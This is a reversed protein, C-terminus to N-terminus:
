YIKSYTLNNIYKISPFPAKEAKIFNKNINRNIVEKLNKIQLNTLLKSIVLKELRKIPCKAIWKQLEGKPRYNLADDYNPGCHEMWRYTKLEMLIPNCKNIIEKRIKKSTEYIKLVDNGDISFSNIGFSNAIKLINRQSPQRKTLNTYVSFLNNECVFLISLNHLKAFNLSEFFVGQETAGEGFFIVVINNKNLKKNAMAIGVGIPITSGVIPVSAIVGSTYDQLHMSGGLGASSGDKKGHLESIMKYLNGGKALYHAHSRHTSIILDKKNLTSCVGTAAAEQGVSLHVPCRMQQKKYNEAILEETRRILYMSKYLNICDKNSIKM